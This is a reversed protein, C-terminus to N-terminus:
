AGLELGLNYFYERFAGDALPTLHYYFTSQLFIQPATGAEVYFDLKRNTKGLTYRLAIPELKKKEMKCM